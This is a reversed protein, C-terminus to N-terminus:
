FANEFHRISKKGAILDVAIVDFRCARGYTGSRVLWAEATRKIKRKKTSTLSGEPTGYTTSTRYRVEVFVVLENVVAIIDLEGVKKFTFNRDLIRYGKQELFAAATEEASRGIRVTDM